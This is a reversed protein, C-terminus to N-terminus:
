PVGARSNGVWQAFSAACAATPCPASLSPSPITTPSASFAPAPHSSLSASAPSPLPWPYSASPLIPIPTPPTVATLPPLLRLRLSAPSGLLSHAGGLFSGLLASPQSDVMLSPLCSVPSQPLNSGRGIALMGLLPPAAVLCKSLLGMLAISSSTLTLPHLLLPLLPTTVTPPTLPSSSLAMPASPLTFTAPSLTFPSSSLLMASSLSADPLLPTFFM